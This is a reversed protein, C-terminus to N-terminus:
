YTLYLADNIISLLKNHKYVDGGGGGGGRYNVSGNIGAVDGGEVHKATPKLIALCQPPIVISFLMQQIM